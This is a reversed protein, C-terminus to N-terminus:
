RKNPHVICYCVVSLSSPRVIYRLICFLRHRPLRARCPTIIRCGRHDYTRFTLSYNFIFWLPQSVSFYNVLPWELLSRWVVNLQSNILGNQVTEVGRTEGSKQKENPYARMNRQYGYINGQKLTDHIQQFKHPVFFTLSCQEVYFIKEGFM